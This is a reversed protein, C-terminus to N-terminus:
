KIKIIHDLLKGFGTRMDELHKETAILKGTVVNENETQIGKEAGHRMFEKLLENFVEEPLSLFPEVILGPKQDTVQIGNETYKYVSTIGKSREILLIKVDNHM